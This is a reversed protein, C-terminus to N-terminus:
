REFVAKMKEIFSEDINKITPIHIFVARGSFKKLAYWYAENCLYATPEDSIFAFFGASDFKKVLRKLDVDSVITEGNKSAKKEIRIESTLTKDVGFMILLDYKEVLSEIDRRVGEFSNTLLFFEDSLQKVLISSSNNKGKFGVFLVKSM